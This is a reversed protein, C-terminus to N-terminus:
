FKEILDPEMPPIPNCCFLKVLTGTVYERGGASDMGHITITQGDRSIVVRYVNGHPDTSTTDYGGVKM